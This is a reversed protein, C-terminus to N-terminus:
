QTMNAARGVGLENLVLRSFADPALKHATAVRYLYQGFDDWQDHSRKQSDHECFRGHIFRLIDEFVIQTVGTFRTGLAGPTAGICVLRALITKNSYHSTAYISEAAKDAENEPVFGLARVITNLTQKAPDTWSPNLSCRSSKVEVFFVQIKAAEETFVDDDSLATMLQERRHPFRVALLDADTRQDNGVEPHVVFNPITLCGNLRFYWHTLEETRKAPM